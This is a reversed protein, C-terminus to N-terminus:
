KRNRKIGKVKIGHKSLIHHTVNCWSNLGLCNNSEEFEVIQGALYQLNMYLSSSMKEGTRMNAVIGNEKFIKAHTSVADKKFNEVDVFANVVLRKLKSVM